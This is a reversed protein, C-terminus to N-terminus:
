SSEKRDNQIRDLWLFSSANSAITSEVVVEYQSDNNRWVGLFLAEVLVNPSLLGNRHLYTSAMRLCQYCLRLNWDESEYEPYRKGCCNCEPPAVKRM